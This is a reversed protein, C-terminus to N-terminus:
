NNIHIRSSIKMLLQGVEYLVKRRQTHQMCTNVDKCISKDNQLTVHEESTFYLYASHIASAHM